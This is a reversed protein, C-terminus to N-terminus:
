KSRNDVVTEISADDPKTNEKIRLFFTQAHVTGGIRLILNEAVEGIITVEVWSDLIFTLDKWRVLQPHIELELKGYRLVFIHDRDLGVETVFLIVVCWLLWIVRLYILIIATGNHIAIVRISIPLILNGMFISLM